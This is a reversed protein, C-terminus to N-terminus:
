PMPAQADYDLFGSQRALLVSVAVVCLLGGLLAAWGEGLASAGSGAVMDGLRPGGAVVVIFVGQLRGRLDDPAAVQLITGRLVASVADAAGALALAISSAILAWWIVGSPRHSGALVVVLGFLAISAGWARVAWGIVRGQWRARSVPGSLVTAVASGVAIAATLVGVTTEGGGIVLLGVAPFLARPFAFVMAMIDSLFTMRLNPATALFRMGDVVARWGQPPAAASPSDASAVQNHLPPMAPLRIIAYLAATFAVAEVTYTWGFGVLGVLTAGLMPGATLAITHTVMSLANAAPLLEAPLLRPIIAGRAPSNVASAGSQVAVLAYLLALNHLNLWAQAVLLLVCLWMVLSAILAVKRRDHTDALAGGYLGMVLLPGLAALGILGVAMTRETTAYVQLGIAIVSVQTGTNALGMGWWLRRYEPSIRLPTIDALLHPM